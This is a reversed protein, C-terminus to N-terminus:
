LLFLEPIAVARTESSPPRLLGRLAHFVFFYLSLDFTEENPHKCAPIALM